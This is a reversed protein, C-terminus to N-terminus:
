LRFALRAALLLLAAAAGALVDDAMVGIAGPLREAWRIPGPKLIDFARFLVFGAVLLLPGGGMAGLLAIWQGAIEDIVVWGPDDRVDLRRIAWLGGVLALGASIPLLVPAVALLGAAVLTAAASAVTGQARPASGCGFGGAIARALRAAAPWSRVSEAM